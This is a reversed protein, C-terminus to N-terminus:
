FGVSSGCGCSTKVEPNNFVFSAGMLDVKYDIEANELYVMSMCDVVLSYTEDLKIVVDDENIKNELGLFYTFGNCGGGQLGFRLITLKEDDLISIIKQKADDTVKIM